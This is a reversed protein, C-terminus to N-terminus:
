ACAEKRQDSDLEVVTLDLNQIIYSAVEFFINNYQEPFGKRWKIATALASSKSGIIIGNEIRFGAFTADELFALEDTFGLETKVKTLQEKVRALNDISTVAETTDIMEGDEIAERIEHVKKNLANFYSVLMRYEGM